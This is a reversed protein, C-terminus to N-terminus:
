GNGTAEKYTKLDRCIEYDAHLRNNRVYVVDPDDSNAGFFKAFDGVWKERDEDDIAEDMEDALVDDAYYTYSIKEYSDFDPDEFDDYTIVQPEKQEKADKSYKRAKNLYDKMETLDIGQKVEEKVEEVKAAVESLNPKVRAYAAKLSAVEEDIRDSYNKKCYIYAAGAGIVVGCAFTILGIVKSNM